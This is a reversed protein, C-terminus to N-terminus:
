VSKVKKIKNLKKKPKNQKKKHKQKQKELEAARHAKIEKRDCHKFWIDQLISVIQATSRLKHLDIFNIM